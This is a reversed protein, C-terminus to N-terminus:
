RLFDVGLSTALECYQPRAVGNMTPKSHLSLVCQVAGPTGKM